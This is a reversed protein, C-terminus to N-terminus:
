GAAWPQAPARDMIAEGPDGMSAPAPADAACPMQHTSQGPDGQRDAKLAGIAPEISPWEPVVEAGVRV